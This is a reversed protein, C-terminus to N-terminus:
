PSWPLRSERAAAGLPGWIEPLNTSFRAATPQQLSINATAWDLDLHDLLYLTM